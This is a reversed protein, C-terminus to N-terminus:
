SRRKGVPVRPNLAPSHIRWGYPTRIVALTEALTAAAGAGKERSREWRVETRVISDTRALERLEYSRVTTAVDPGSEHGPCDVAGNFWDSSATFQGASDRRVFERLLTDPDFHTRAPSLECGVTDDAAMATQTPPTPPPPPTAPVSEPASREPAERCASAVLLVTLVLRGRSLSAIRVDM